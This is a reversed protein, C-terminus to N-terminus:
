SSFKDSINFLRRLMNEGLQTNLHSDSLFPNVYMLGCKEKDSFKEEATDYFSGETIEVENNGPYLLYRRSANFYRGYVYLQRIDEIETDSLFKWKTDLVVVEKTATNTIVIDPRLHLVSKNPHQWYQITEQEQVASEIGPLQSASALMMYIYSEWLLNMDFMIALINNNGGKLDPHYNLLIIKALELATKYRETKRDFKLGKFLAESINVPKCEPFGLLVKEATKITSILSSISRIAELAQLLISNYLNDRDYVQHSVYFREAHVLNKSVNQHVLLKGKLANQNSINTRYKKVLGQHLLMQVEHLFLDLYTELVNHQRVNIDAHTTTKAKVRLSIALMDILLKQWDGDELSHKDTKPLVEISLDGVKIVGVYNSFQIRNYFVTYYGCKPNATLYQALLKQHGETFEVGNYKEGAVLWGYEYALIPANNLM